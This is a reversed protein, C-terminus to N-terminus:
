LAQSFPKVMLLTRVGVISGLGVFRSLIDLRRAM